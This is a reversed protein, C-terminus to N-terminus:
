VQYCSLESTDCRQALTNWMRQLAAVQANSLHGGALGSNYLLKDHFEDALMADEREAVLRNLASLEGEQVRDFEQLSYGEFSPFSPLRVAHREGSGRHYVRGVVQPAVPVYM